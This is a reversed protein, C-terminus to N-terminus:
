RAVRRHSIRFNSAIPPLRINTRAWRNAVWRIVAEAPMPKALFYAHAADCSIVYVSPYTFSTIASGFLTTSLLLMAISQKLNAGEPSDARDVVM